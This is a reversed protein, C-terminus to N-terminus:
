ERPEGIVAAPLGARELRILRGEQRVETSGAIRRWRRPVSEGLDLLVDGRAPALARTPVAVVLLRSGHRRAFALVDSGGAVPVPEYSGARFLEPDARRAALLGALLRQKQADPGEPPDSALARVRAEFDVPARNDPDVLVHELFEAGRYVDPVGPLCAQLVVQALGNRRGAPGVVALIAALEDRFAAGAASETLARVFATTAAEYATGPEVWASHRRAERLAKVVYREARAADIPWAGLLTQYILDEDIADPADLGAVTARLGRHREHWRDCAALWDDAMESLVDIRARTDAGRKTDHTSLPTLSALGRAAMAGAAAHFGDISLTPREPHSGVENVSVLAVARYLETDEYGKAMAPGSLQQVRRVFEASEADAAGDALIGTVTALARKEGRSLAPRALAAATELLRVDEPDASAAVYTRYVPLAAILGAVVDRATGLRVPRDARRALDTALRALADLEASFVRELIERKAAIRRTVPEGGHGNAALRASFRDWGALDVFVANILNLTEYGTTGDVPWPRLAEGHGLIKEVHLSAGPGARARLRECYAAPDALGDVHDVRLGDVVGEEVLALPLRHVADFVQPEEVRLAALDTIDFFRRYNIAAAGERWHMPAYHQESVVAGVDARGIAADLAARAGEAALADALARRRERRTGATFRGDELGAWAEAAAGLAPDDAAEAAAAALDGVSKPRLPLRTEEVALFFRGEDPEVVIGARGEALIEGLPAGLVPLVLPGASWDIDFFRANRSRRGFELVDRWRRNDGGGIGAHNPVIDVILGLGAAHLAEALRRLGAEGGLEPSVADHDVVDYGHASGARAQFIPSAYLHSIGLDRFYPVLRRADDFTFATSFQVRYTATLPRITM